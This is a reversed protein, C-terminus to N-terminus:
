NDLSLDMCLNDTQYNLIWLLNPLEFKLVEYLSIIYGKIAM